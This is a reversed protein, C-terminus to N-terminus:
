DTTIPAPAATADAGGKEPEDAEDADDADDSEPDPDPVEDDDDDDSSARLSFLSTMMCLLASIAAHAFLACEDHPTDHALSSKPNLFGQCMQFLIKIWKTGQLKKVLDVRANVQLECVIGLVSLIGSAELHKASTPTASLLMEVFWENGKKALAVSFGDVFRVLNRLLQLVDRRHQSQPAFIKALKLLIAPWKDLGPTTKWAKCGDKISTEKVWASLLWLNTCVYTTPNPRDALSIRERKSDFVVNSM